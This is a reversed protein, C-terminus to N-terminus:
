PLENNKNEEDQKKGSYIINWVTFFMYAGFIIAGVIYMGYGM